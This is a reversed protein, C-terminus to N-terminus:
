NKSSARSPRKSFGRKRGAGPNPSSDNSWSKGPLYNRGQRQNQNNGGRLIPEAKISPDPEYGEIIEQRITHKLLREIDKLQEREDICVLSVAIGEREARGTRGIRHVYDESVSPLEFNVVHPLHDIDLGRAAIDTAVLVRVDGHKFDALARTRTTQSKNGHIAAASIGDHELQKTLKNAGHKTRTFVLVQRWKKSGILFSLLERKRIRDVPHILQEITESATNRSDVEILVPSNLLSEALRKIDNSFTAFFLLNQRRAPLLTLIRRIDRIFGMDLMRDAEDVVLIEVKSLDLTRQQVHDLLRGPTAVLVDVGRRLQGIQPNIKVGGFIVASKLPLYKGYAAVSEEVQAALERTPTLILARVSSKGNTTSRKSLLQLLPLAFGATKGTGTQAGALIDKGGLIVPIARSQVPTPKSYGQDAIARLLEASLGLTTFSM